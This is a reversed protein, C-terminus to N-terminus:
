IQSRARKLFGTRGSREAAFVRFRKKLLIPGERFLM